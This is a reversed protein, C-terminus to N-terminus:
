KFRIRNQPLEGYKKILKRATNDEEDTMKKRSSETQLIENMFKDFPQSDVSEQQMAQDCLRWQKMIEVLDEDTLDRNLRNSIRELNDDTPKDTMEGRGITADWVASEITQKDRRSLM